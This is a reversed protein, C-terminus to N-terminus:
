VKEINKFMQQLEYNQDPNNLEVDQLGEAEKM